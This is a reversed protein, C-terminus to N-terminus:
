PNPMGDLPCSELGGSLRRGENVTLDRRDRTDIVQHQDRRVFGVETPESPQPNLAPRLGGLVLLRPRKAFAPQNDITDLGSGELRTRVGIVDAPTRRFCRVFAELSSHYEV